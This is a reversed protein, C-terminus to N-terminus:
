GMYDFLSTKAMKAHVELAAQQNYKLQTMELIAQTGDADELSSQDLKLRVQEKSSTNAADELCNQAHGYFSLMSNLHDSVGALPALAAQITANDDAILAQRLNEMAQFVNKEPDPNEFITQADVAVAMTGGGPHTVRRSSGTGQYSTWPPNQQLDIGYAPGQDSDGSFIYRGAVQSNALGAMRELLTGIQEALEARSETTQETGTAALGLTRVEDFTKIANQMAGEASDVESRVRDLNTSVQKLRAMDARVQLLNSVVNPDDSPSVVRKGGSVESEARELRSSIQRLRALYLDTSGDISSIM